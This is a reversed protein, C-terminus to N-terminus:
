QTVSVPVEISQNIVPHFQSIKISQNIVSHDLGVSTQPLIHIIWCGSRRQRGGELLLPLPHLLLQHPHPPEDANHKVQAVGPHGAPHLAVERHLLQRSCHGPCLGEGRLLDGGVVLALLHTPLPIHSRPTVEKM